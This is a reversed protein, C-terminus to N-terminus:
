LFAVSLVDGHDRDRKREIALGHRLEVKRADSAIFREVKKSETETLRYHGAVKAIWAELLAHL